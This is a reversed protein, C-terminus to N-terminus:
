LSAFDDYSTGLMKELSKKSIMIEGQPNCFGILINRAIRAEIQYKSFGLMSACDSISIYSEKNEAPTLDFVGRMGKKQCHYNYIDEAYLYRGKGVRESRVGGRYVAQRFADTSLGTFASAETIRMMDQGNHKIM